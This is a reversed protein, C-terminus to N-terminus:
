RRTIQLVARSPLCHIRTADSITSDHLRLVDAWRSTRLSKIPQRENGGRAIDGKEFRTGRITARPLRGTNKVLRVNILKNCRCKETTMSRVSKASFARPKVALTACAVSFNQWQNIRIWSPRHQDKVGRWRRRKQRKREHEEHAVFQRTPHSISLLRIAWKSNDPISCNEVIYLTCDAKLEYILVFIPLSVQFFGSETCEAYKETM